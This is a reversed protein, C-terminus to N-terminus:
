ELMRSKLETEAPLTKDWNENTNNSPKAVFFNSM